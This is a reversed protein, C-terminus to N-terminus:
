FEVIKMEGSALKPLESFEYGYSVHDTGFCVSRRLVVDKCKFDIEITMRGFYVGFAKIQDAKKICRARVVDAYYDANPFDSTVFPLDYFGFDDDYETVKGFHYDCEIGHEDEITIRIVVRETEPFDALIVHYKDKRTLHCKVGQNMLHTLVKRAEALNNAFRCFLM